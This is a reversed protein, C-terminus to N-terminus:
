EKKMIREVTRAIKNRFPFVIIVTVVNFILHANAVQQSLAVDQMKIFRIFINLFPSFILLGAFNIILNALAAEKAEKSLTFSAFIATGTTGVNSGIIMAVALDISLLGQGVLVIVLGSVVSSSQLLFTVVMGAILGWYPSAPSLLYERVIPHNQIGALETSLLNLGFMLLGFYFIPKGWVGFKGKIFNLIYGIILFYPGIDTLKIAVIQATITTGINSGLLLTIAQTLNMSGSSVLSVCIVSVASSSQVIATIIAGTILGLIPITTTKNIIERAQDKFTLQLERAFSDIAFLFLVLASAAATMIKFEGM